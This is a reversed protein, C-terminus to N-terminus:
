HREGAAFQCPEQLAMAPAKEADFSAMV